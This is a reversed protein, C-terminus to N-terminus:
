HTCAGTAVGRTRGAGTRVEDEVEAGTLAYGTGGDTTSAAFVVGAVEGRPTVFPGGSDGQRVPSQLEYVERQVEDRGYIDRGRAEFVAQVAAPHPVLQGQRSGPFGLTAGPAGSKLQRTLLPLPEAALGPVRVVALDLQDDFLVVTGTVGADITERQEIMVTEGGAVVHANTVVTDEAAVWGSGLQTGGCAPVVVRVTSDRAALVAKNATKNSPLKVPEGDGPPIGVFVQPFGSTDLYQQLYRLLDPPRSVNNAIRLVASDSLENAVARSPGLVLVSGVLWYAVFAAVAGIVAGVGSDVKGMRARKAMEGFRAGIVYGIIQGISLTVFVVVLSLLAAEVGARDTYERVLRPGLYAGLLLGM